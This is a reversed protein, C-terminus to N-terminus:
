DYSGKNRFDSTINLWIFRYNESRNFGFIEPSKPGRRVPIGRFSGYPAGSLKYSKM